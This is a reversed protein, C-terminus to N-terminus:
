LVKSLIHTLTPPHSMLYLFKKYNRKRSIERERQKQTLLFPKAKMPLEYNVQTPRIVTPSHFENNNVDMALWSNTM